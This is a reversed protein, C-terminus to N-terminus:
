PNQDSILYMQKPSLDDAAMHSCSPNIMGNHAVLSLHLIKSPFHNPTNDLILIELNKLLLTILKTQYNYIFM